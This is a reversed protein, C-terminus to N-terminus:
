KLFLLLTQQNNSLSLSKTFIADYFFSKGKTATIKIDPDSIDLLSYNFTRLGSFGSLIIFLAATGVFLGLLHLLPLLILQTIEVRLM